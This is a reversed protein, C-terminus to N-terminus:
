RGLRAADLLEQDFLAALNEAQSRTFYIPLVPSTRNFDRSVGSIYEVKQQTTAFFPHNDKFYYGLRIVSSGTAINSVRTVKWAFFGNVSGYLDRNKRNKKTLNREEYDHNYQNMAEIFLARGDRNWFQEYSVFVVSETRISVVDETPYYYVDFNEKKIGGFMSKNVQAEISGIKIKPLDIDITFQEKASKNSACSVLSVAIIIISILKM